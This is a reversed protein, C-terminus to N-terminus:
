FNSSAIRQLARLLKGGAGPEPETKRSGILQLLAEVERFAAANEYVEGDEPSYVDFLTLGLLFLDRYVPRESLGDVATYSLPGQAARIIKRVLLSGADPVVCRRSGLIFWEPQLWGNKRRQRFVETVLRAYSGIDVVEHTRPNVRVILDMDIPSENVPTLLIDAYPLSHRLMNLDTGPMDIIIFDHQVMMRRITIDFIQDDLDAHTVLKHDIEPIKMCKENFYAWRNSLYKTLSSQHFDMDITGISYGQNLIGTWLHVALTTKGCGGKTNSILIIKAKGRTKRNGIMLFKDGSLSTILGRIIKKFASLM